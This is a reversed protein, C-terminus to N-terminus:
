IGIMSSLDEDEKKTEYIGLKKELYYYFGLYKKYALRTFKENKKLFNVLEFKKESNLARSASGLLFGYKLEGLVTLNTVIVQNSDIFAAIKMWNGREFVLDLLPNSDMFIRKTM